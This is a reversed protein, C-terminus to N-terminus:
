SAQKPGAGLVEILGENLLRDLFEILDRQCAHKDIEYESVIVDRIDSVTRPDRILHWVRAAVEDLGYYMNKTLDLVVAEGRLDASVQEKTAMVVSDVTISM